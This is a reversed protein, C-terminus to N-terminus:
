GLRSGWGCPSRLFHCQQYDLMLPIDGVPFLIPFLKDTASCSPIKRLSQVSAHSCRRLDHRFGVTCIRVTPTFPTEFIFRSALYNRRSPLAPRRQVWYLFFLGDFDDLQWSMSIAYAKCKVNEVPCSILPSILNTNVRYTQLVGNADFPPQLLPEPKLFRFGVIEVDNGVQM